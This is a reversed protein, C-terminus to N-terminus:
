KNTLSPTDQRRPASNPLPPPGLGPPMPPHTSFQSVLTRWVKRDQPNMNKWREADKLFQEREASSLEAFKKFGNICRERQDNPLRDFAQLSAKMQLRESQNLSELARAKENKPLEFFRKFHEQISQRREPPLLNWRQISQEIRKREPDSLASLNSNPRPPSTESRFFLTTAMQNELVDKQLDAPLQDWEKLREEVLKQVREPVAALSPQRNSAAMAMLPLLYIRLELTRLRTEREEPTLLEYEKLKEQLVQRQQPSRTALFTEREVVPMALMKRFSDIPSSPIPPPSPKGALIPQKATVQPPVPQAFSGVVFSFGIALGLASSRLLM